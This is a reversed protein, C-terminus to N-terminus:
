KKVKNLYVLLENKVEKKIFSDMEEKFENVNINLLKLKEMTKNVQNQLEEVEKYNNESKSKEINILDINKNTNIKENFLMENDAFKRDEDINNINM